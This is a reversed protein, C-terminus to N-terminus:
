HHQFKQLNAEKIAKYRRREIAVERGLTMKVDILEVVPMLTRGLEEWMRDGLNLIQRCEENDIATNVRAASQLEHDRRQLREFRNRYERLRFMGVEDLNLGEVSERLNRFEEYLAEMDNM